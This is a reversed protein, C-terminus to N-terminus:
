NGFHPNSRTWKRYEGNRVKYVENKVRLSRCQATLTKQYLTWMLKEDVKVNM